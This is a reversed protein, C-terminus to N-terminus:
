GPVRAEISTGRGPATQVTLPGGAGQVRDRMSTLGYGEHGPHVEVRAPDFGRGDDDVRLVATPGSRELRVRVNTAAAHQAVNALAQQAVRFLVTEVEPDLRRGGLEETVTCGALGARDRTAAALDRVAAVLGHQDLVLPRLAGITRRLADLEVTVDGRLQDLLGRVRAPDAELLLRIRDLKLGMAALSQVHSDHLDAALRQHQGELAQYLRALLQQRQQEAQRVETVDQDTGIIRVVRGTEDRVGEGRVLVVRVSGDPHVVRHEVEFPTPDSVVRGIEKRIHDLDDPHVRAIGSEVDLPTGPELGLIRYQEDSAIMKGSAVDLEWSGVGALRQAEALRRRSERLLEDARRRETVDRCFAMAGTVEGEPGRLPVADVAWIREQDRWGAVEFRQREGALAAQCRRALTEALDAPFLDHITRGVLEDPRWSTERLASGTLLEIRLDQDYVLVAVDPLHDAVTRYRHDAATPVHAGVRAIRSSM